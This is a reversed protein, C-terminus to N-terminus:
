CIAGKTCPMPKLPLSFTILLWNKRCIKSMYKPLELLSPKKEVEAFDDEQGVDAVYAIVEYGKDILWKLIVSTDLGGSYALVVKKNEM